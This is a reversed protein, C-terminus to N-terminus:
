GGGYVAWVGESGAPARVPIAAVPETAMEGPASNAVDSERALRIAIELTPALAVIMGCTYDCLVGTWVWLTMDHLRARPSM